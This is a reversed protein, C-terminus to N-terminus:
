THEIQIGTQPVLYGRKKSPYQLVTCPKSSQNSTSKPNVSSENIINHFARTIENPSISNARVWHCVHVFEVVCSSLWVCKMAFVYVHSIRSNLHATVAACM